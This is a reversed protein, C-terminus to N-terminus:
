NAGPKHRNRTVGYEDIRIVMNVKQLEAMRQQIVEGYQARLTIPINLKRRWIAM